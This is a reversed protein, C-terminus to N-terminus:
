YDDETLLSDPKKECIFPCPRDCWVDDLQGNNFMAGCFQATANDPQGGSWKDYGAQKLTQGHITMWMGHEEWDTHGIHVVHKIFNGPLSGPPHQAYIERLVQAETESNIIALHGGEGSCASFARPWTQPETHFKYCSGTRTDLAYGDISYYDGKSYTAHIGTFVGCTVGQNNTVIIRMAHRLDETEPSALVAGERFCRLRADRWTAPIQHLKMWGEAEQYYDYDFRFLKGHVALFLCFALSVVSLLIM